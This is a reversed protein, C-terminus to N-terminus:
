GGTILNLIIHAFTPAEIANTAEALGIFVMFLIFYSTLASTQGNAAVTHFLAASGAVILAAVIIALIPHTKGSLFKKASPYLAGIFFLTEVFPALVIVFTFGLTPDISASSSLLKSLILQKGTATMIFGAVGGIFANQVLQKQNQSFGIFEFFSHGAALLIVLSIIAMTQYNTAIGATATQGQLQSFQTSVWGALLLMILLVAGNLWSTNAM